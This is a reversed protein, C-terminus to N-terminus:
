ASVEQMGKATEILYHGYEKLREVLLAFLDALGILLHGINELTIPTTQIKSPHDKQDDSLKRHCNRCIISLDDGFHQGAIHHEELCRWDNEGCIVCVPNNTGLKELRNQKRTELNKNM